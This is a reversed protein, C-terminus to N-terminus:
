WKQRGMQKHIILLLTLRDSAVYALCFKGSLAPLGQTEIMSSNNHCVMINFYMNSFISAVEPGDSETKAPVVHIMKTFKGCFVIIATNGDTTPPLQTSLDM